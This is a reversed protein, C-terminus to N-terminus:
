REIKIRGAKIDNEVTQPTSVCIKANWLGPRKKAPTSGTVLRLSDSDQGLRLEDSITKAHQECLPKTPSLFLVRGKGMMKEIVLVAILTKGIGTPLVALTSGRALASEAIAAQYKRPATKPMFIEQMGISKLSRMALKQRHM